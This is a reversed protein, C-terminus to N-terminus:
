KVVGIVTCRASDIGEIYISSVMLEDLKSIEYPIYLDEIILVSLGKFGDEKLLVRHTKRGMERNAYSSISICDIGIAKIYPFKDRIWRAANPSLYPNKHGYTYTEQNRCKLFGTRILLMDPDTLDSLATLDNIEIAEELGKPCDMLFPKKFILEDLSYECITRGSESFHRLAAIHTGTHNSDAVHSDFFGSGGFVVVNV